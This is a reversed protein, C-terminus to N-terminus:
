TVSTTPIKCWLIGHTPVECFLGIHITKTNYTWIRVCAQFFFLSIKKFPYSIKVRPSQKIKHFTKIGTIMINSMPILARGYKLM